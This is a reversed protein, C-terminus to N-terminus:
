NHWLTRNMFQGMEGTLLTTAIDSHGMMYQLTRLDGGNMLYSRAATHRYTHAGLKIGEIKASHSIKIITSKIGVLTMPKREESVWLADFNDNRKRRYSLLAQRAPLSVRVIREKDGKGIIRVAGTDMNIGNGKLSALEGIRIGTDLLILIMAKNRVSTFKSQECWVLIRQLQATDFTRHIRQPVKPARINSMPSKTIIDCKVLWNFWTRLSRFVQHITAPAYHKDRLSALYSLTNVPNPSQPAIVSLYRQINIQYVEITRPSKGEVKCTDLYDKLHRAYSIQNPLNDLVGLFRNPLNDLM